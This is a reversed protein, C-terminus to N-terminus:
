SPNFGSNILNKMPIFLPKPLDKWEFWDWQECKDPELVQVDGSKYESLVWFTIYHKQEKPFIDETFKVIQINEIEIGVEELTERKACEIVTEGFDLNGGPPSWTDSGHSGIRKGMLFKEDKLILVGVGIKPFNETVKAM